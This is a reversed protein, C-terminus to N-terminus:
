KKLTFPNYSVQYDYTDLQEKEKVFGIVKYTIPTCVIEIVLKFVYNSLVMVLLVHVDYLGFFAITVFVLSDLFEGVISSGITRIFLFKGEMKVKILSLFVSNSYNGALYGCVSGLTIRPMQLLINEYSQQFTWSSEAPLVSIFLINMNVFLMILFGFLIVKWTQKFGYVEALVDSVVYSFPFLMTGGDFVFPGIAVMKTALINSIILSGVFFATIYPLLKKESNTENNNM